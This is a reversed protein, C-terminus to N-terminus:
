GEIWDELRLGEIQSFERTNHTVLDSVLRNALSMRNILPLDKSNWLGRVQPIGQHLLLKVGSMQQLKTIQTGLRLDISAEGWQNDELPPDFRIRGAAVEKRLERQSLIM